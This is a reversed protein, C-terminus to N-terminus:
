TKPININDARPGFSTKTHDGNQHNNQECKVPLKQQDGLIIDTVEQTSGIKCRAVRMFQNTTYIGVNKGRFGRKLFNM